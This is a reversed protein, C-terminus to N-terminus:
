PLGCWYAANEPECREFLPLEMGPRVLLLEWPDAIHLYRAGEKTIELHLSHEHPRDARPHCLDARLLAGEGVGTHKTFARLDMYGNLLFHHLQESRQVRWVDRGAQERMHRVNDFQEKTPEAYTAKFPAKPLPDKKLISFLATSQGPRVLILEKEPIYLLMEDGAHTPVYGHYRQFENNEERRRLLGLRVLGGLDTRRGLFDSLEEYGQERGRLIRNYRAEFVAATM